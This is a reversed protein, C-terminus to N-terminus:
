VKKKGLKKLVSILYKKNEPYLFFEIAEEDTCQPIYVVTTGMYNAKNSHEIFVLMSNTHLADDCNVIFIDEPYRKAWNEVTQMLDYGKLIYKNDQNKFNLCFDYWISHINSILDKQQTM